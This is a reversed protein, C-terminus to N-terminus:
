FRVAIGGLVRKPPNAVAQEDLIAGEGADYYLNRVAVLVDWDARTLAGLFPLGQSLQVDFRRAIAAQETGGLLQNLRYLAVVRTDTDEIVTEVRAVLDHFDGERFALIPMVEVVEPDAGAVPVPRWAHGFTYTVQGNVFRGFRHGLSLGMGRAELGGANLIHLTPAQGGEPVGFANALQDQVSEYFTYARLNTAGFEQALALEMRMSREARLGQDMEAYTFAPGTALTSLTLLDGGPAMTRTAFSAMLRTHDDRRFELAASPDVHHAAELFGIYSFRSGVTATVSDAVEWRDQAFVAGVSRDHLREGDTPLIPRVFRTGYGTGIQLEHGEVPETVFEGAMRWATSESESVLGGLAWRGSGAIRGKLRVVSM